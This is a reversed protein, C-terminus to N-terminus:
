NGRKKREDKWEKALRQYPIKALLLNSKFEQLQELLIDVKEFVEEERTKGPTFQFDLAIQRSCDRMILEADIGYGTATVHWSIAGTDDSHIPNLWERGRVVVEDDMM